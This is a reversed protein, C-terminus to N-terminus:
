VGPGCVTSGLLCGHFTTFCQGGNAGECKGTGLLDERLLRDQDLEAMDHGVVRGLALTGQLELLQGLFVGAALDLDLDIGLEVRYL